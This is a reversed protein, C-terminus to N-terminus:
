RALATRSAPATPQPQRMILDLRNAVIKAWLASGIPSFHQDAIQLNYLPSSPPRNGNREGERMLRLHEDIFLDLADYYWTSSGTYINSIRGPYHGDRRLGLIQVDCPVPVLLCPIARARCWLVIEELWYAAEDWEKGRGAIVDLGPGFDNPCVSVILFHPHFRDGFEILSHYYQEPAYGTHGTNVLSVPKGWLSALTRQLRYPPTDHDGIFTGMMFSDGLIVGRVAANPDPEPGRLGWSNTSMASSEEVIAGAAVAAARVKANDPVLFLGFPGNLLTVQRLWISKRNPLLRYSRGNSDAAFVEASLVFADTVRGSGIVGHEPDMVAADFLTKIEPTANRYYASLSEFTREVTRARAQKHIAEIESRERELGIQHLAFLRVNETTSAFADRGARTGGILAVVILSTLAVIIRKFQRHRRETHTLERRPKTLRWIERNLGWRM